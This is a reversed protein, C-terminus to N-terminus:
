RKQMPAQMSPPLVSLLEKEGFVSALRSFAGGPLPAYVISPTDPFPPEPFELSLAHLIYGGRFPHGGYKSDGSLALGRSSAQVRIQHTLGTHLEVLLLSRGGRVLLPTMSAFAEAGAESIASTRSGEDRTLRDRWEGGEAAEGDALALYRKRLRRERM